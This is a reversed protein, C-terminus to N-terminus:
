IKIRRHSTCALAGVDWAWLPVPRAEFPQYSHGRPKTYLSHIAKVTISITSTSSTSIIVVLAIVIDILIVVASVIVIVSIASIALAMKLYM